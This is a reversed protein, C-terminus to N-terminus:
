VGESEETMPLRPPTGLLAPDPQQQWRYRRPAKVYGFWVKAWSELTREQHRVFALALALAALLGVLGWRVVQTWGDGVSAELLHAFPSLLFKTGVTNAAWGGGILVALQRWTFTFFGITLHDNIRLHTPVRYRKIDPETM